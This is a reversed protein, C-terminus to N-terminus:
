FTRVYIHYFYQGISVAAFYRITVLMIAIIYMVKVTWFTDAIYVVDIAGNICSLICM